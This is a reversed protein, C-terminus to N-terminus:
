RQCFHVHTQQTSSGAPGDDTCAVFFGNEFIIGDTSVPVGDGDSVGGNDIANVKVVWDPITTGLTVESAASVDFCQIWTDTASAIAVGRIATVAIYGSTAVAPSAGTIANTLTTVSAIKHHSSASM